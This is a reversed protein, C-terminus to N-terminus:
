DVKGASAGPGSKGGPGGAAGGVPGGGVPNGPRTLTAKQGPPADPTKENCGSVLGIIIALVTIALIFRLNM